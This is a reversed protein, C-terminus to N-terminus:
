RKTLYYTFWNHSTGEAGYERLKSLLIKYDVTDFAKKLDLFTSLNIKGEDSNQFWLDIVNLTLTSHLKQFAFQNLYLRYSFWYFSQSKETRIRLIYQNADCTSLGNVHIVVITLIFFHM